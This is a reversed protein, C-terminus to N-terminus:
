VFPCLVRHRGLPVDETVESESPRAGLTAYTIVLGWELMALVGAAVSCAVPSPRAVVSAAVGDM